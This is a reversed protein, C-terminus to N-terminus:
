AFRRCTMLVVVSLTVLFLTSPETVAVNGHGIGGTQLWNAAVLAIDQGNVIFNGNADAALYGTALWNSAIVAIDQGNVIGDHNVDGPLAPPYPTYGIADLAAIEVGLNPTEGRTAYADQVQPPHGGSPYSYWDNFDGGAHQNFQALDIKGDLSFYAQTTLGTDFSHPAGTQDYRPLDEPWIAGTPAAAGNASGTLASAIGLVEDIEHM